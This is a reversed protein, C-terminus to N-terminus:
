PFSAASCFIAACSSAPHLNQCSTTLTSALGKGSWDSNSINLFSISHTTAQEITSTILPTESAPLLQLVQQSFGFHLRGFILRGFHLSGFSFSGFSFQKLGFHSGQAGFHSGTQETGAQQSRAQPDAQPSEPQPPDPQPTTLECEAGASVGAGASAAGAATSGAGEGDAASTFYIRSIKKIAQVLFARGEVPRAKKQKGVSHGPEVHAVRALRSNRSCLGGTRVQHERPSASYQL